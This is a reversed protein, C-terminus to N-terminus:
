DEEEDDLSLLDEDFEDDEDVEDETEEVEAVTEGIVKKGIPSRSTISGIKEGNVYELAIAEELGIAKKLSDGEQLGAALLAGCLEDYYYSGDPYRMRVHYRTGKQDTLDYLLDVAEEGAKTKTFEVGAIKSRYKGAAVVGNKAFAYNRAQVPRKIIFNKENQRLGNRAGLRTLSSM